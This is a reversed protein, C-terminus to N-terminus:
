VRKLIYDRTGLGIKEGKGVRLNIHDVVKSYGRYTHYYISLDEINLVNEKM